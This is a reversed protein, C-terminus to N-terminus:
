SDLSGKPPPIDGPVFFDPALKNFPVDAYISFDEVGNEALINDDLCFQGTFEKSNKILIVHAADAM